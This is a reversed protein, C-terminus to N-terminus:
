ISSSGCDEVECCALLFMWTVVNVSFSSGVSISLSAADGVWFMTFSFYDACGSAAGCNSIPRTIRSAKAEFCVSM